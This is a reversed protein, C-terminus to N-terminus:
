HGNQKEPLIVTFRSGHEPESRVRINGGHLDVIKKCIALGIGTGEYASRGHLREFPKFIRDGHKEDFGIGNDEVTIEWMGNKNLTSDVQVCPPVGSRHYKLANGILNQFLQGMQFLDAELTPLDNFVVTGKTQAIRAELNELVQEIIPKFDIPEFSSGKSTIKSYRLLDEIFVQMRQAANQMRDLYDLGRDNTEPMGDKLRDGFTIIKRLPEQLDHSAIAAFEQLAQNSRELEQKIRKRETIDELTGITTKHNGRVLFSANIQVWTPEGDGPKHIRCGISFPEDTNEVRAWHEFVQEKDDPHIIEWWKRGLSENPTLGTIEQWRTNTYVYHDDEDIEFIGVPSSGSIKRYRQESNWLRKELKKRATIDRLIGTMLRGKKTMMQSIGLDMDFTSGDKRLGVVERYIGMIDSQGTKLFNKLYQDHSSRHPEPMLINVNKGLVEYASYGFIREAAPNFSEVIGNETITIIADAAHEVLNRIRNEKDKIDLHALNREKELRLKRLHLIVMVITSLTLLGFLVSYWYILSRLPKYAEAADIETTIGLYYQPLWRWAGVVPVGRYNNYGELDFGSEGKTVGAAMKTLPQQERPLTPRYGELLNGGPDRIEINLIARSEPLNPILDVQKLHDVSRSNSLLTGESDLLYTEGTEGFRNTELINSLATEPRVRFGLVGVIEGEDNRIPTSTFMTPFNPRWIGHVDPLPVESSFPLSIVTDGQLTRYFFDSRDSLQRKGVPEELLSGVQLGTNDFLVFGIFGYKRCADGLHERLWILEESQKLKHATVNPSDGLQILSLIKERVEPQAALVQTDLKKDEIWHDLSQINASLTSQLNNYVGQQMEEKVAHIGFGGVVILIILPVLFIITKPISPMFRAMIKPKAPTTM